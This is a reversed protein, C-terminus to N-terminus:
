VMCENKDSDRGGSRHYLVCCAVRTLGAPLPDDAYEGQAPGPLVEWAGRATGPLLGADEAIRGSYYIHHNGDNM